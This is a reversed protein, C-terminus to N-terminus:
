ASHSVPPVTSSPSTFSLRGQVCGGGHSVCSSWNVCTWVGPFLESTWKGGPTQTHKEIGAAAMWGPVLDLATITSSMPIFLFAALRLVKEMLKILFISNPILQALSRVNEGRCDPLHDRLPACIRCGSPFNTKHRQQLPMIQIKWLQYLVQLTRNSYIEPLLTSYHSAGRYWRAVTGDFDNLRLRVPM